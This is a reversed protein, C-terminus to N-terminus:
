RDIGPGRGSRSYSVEDFLGFSVGLILKDSV